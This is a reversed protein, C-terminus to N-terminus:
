KIHDRLIKYCQETLEDRSKLLENSIKDSIDKSYREEVTNIEALEDVIRNL